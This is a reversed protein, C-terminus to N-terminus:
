PDQRKQSGLSSELLITSPAVGGGASLFARTLWSCAQQWPHAGTGMGPPGLSDARQPGGSPLTMGLSQPLSGESTDGLVWRRLKTPPPCPRPCHEAPNSGPCSLRPGQVGRWMELRLPCIGEARACGPPDCFPVPGVALPRCAQALPFWGQPLERGMPSRRDRGGSSGSFLIHLGQRCM